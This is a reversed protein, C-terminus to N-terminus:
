NSYVVKATSSPIEGAVPDNVIIEYKTFEESAFVNVPLLVLLVFVTLFLLGNKKM